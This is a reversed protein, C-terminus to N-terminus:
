IINKYMGCNAWLMGHIDHTYHVHVENGCAHLTYCMGM